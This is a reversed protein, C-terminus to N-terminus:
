RFSINAVVPRFVEGRLFGDRLIGAFRVCGASSEREVLPCKPPTPFDPCLVRHQLRSRSFNRKAKMGAIEVQYESDCLVPFWNTERHLQIARRRSVIVADICVTTSQTRNLTVPEILEYPLLTRHFISCEFNFEEIGTHLYKREGKSLQTSPPEINVRRCNKTFERTVAARTLEASHSMLGMSTAESSLSVTFTM